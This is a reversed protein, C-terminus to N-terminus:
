VATRIKNDVVWLDQNEVIFRYIQPSVRNHGSLQKIEAETFCDSSPTIQKEVISIMHFETSYKAHRPILKVYQECFEKTIMNFYM